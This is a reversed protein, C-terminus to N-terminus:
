RALRKQAMRVLERHGGLVRLFPSKLINDLLHDGKATRDQFEAASMVVPNIERRLVEQAEALSTVINEFSVNGVVLLDVDSASAEGGRALSGFVLALEIENVLPDLARRLVDVLGETKVVISKIEDFIPCQTNAQFLVQNEKVCRVLVGAETLRKLERQGAGPSIQALRLVKRLHFAEDAHGFLLALISRRTKGFLAALIGEPVLQSKTSM